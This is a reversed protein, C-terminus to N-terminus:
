CAAQNQFHPQQFDFCLYNQLTFAIFKGPLPDQTYFPTHTPPSAMNKPHLYKLEDAFAISTNKLAEM